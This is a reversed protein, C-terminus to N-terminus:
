YEKMSAQASNYSGSGLKAAVSFVPDNGGCGPYNYRNLLGIVNRNQSFIPMVSFTIVFFMMIWKLNILKRTLSSNLPNYFPLSNSGSTCAQTTAQSIKPLLLLIYIYINFSLKNKTSQLINKM